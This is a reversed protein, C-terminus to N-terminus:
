RDERHRFVTLFDCKCDQGFCGVRDLEDVPLESEIDIECVCRVADTSLDRIHVRAAGDLVYGSKHTKMTKLLHCTIADRFKADNPQILASSSIDCGFLYSDM